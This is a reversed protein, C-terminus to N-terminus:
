EETVEHERLVAQDVQIVKEPRGSYPVIVFLYYRGGIERFLIVISSLKGSPAPDAGEAQSSTGRM